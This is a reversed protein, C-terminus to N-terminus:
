GSRLSPDVRRLMQGAHEFISTSVARIWRREPVPPPADIHSMRTIVKLMRPEEWASPTFPQALRAASFTAVISRQAGSRIPKWSSCLPM